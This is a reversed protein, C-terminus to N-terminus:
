VGEWSGIGECNKLSGVSRLPSFESVLSVDTEQVYELYVSSSQCPFSARGTIRDVGYTLWLVLLFDCVTKDSSVRTTYRQSM